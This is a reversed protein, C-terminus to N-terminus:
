DTTRRNSVFHAEIMSAVFFTQKKENFVPERLGRLLGLLFFSLFALSGARCDTKNDIENRQCAKQLLDEIRGLFSGAQERLINDHKDQLFLAERVLARSFSLNQGLYEYLEATIHALQMKINVPPLTALSNQLVNEIDERFTSILLSPKDPFHKFITGLGVDAHEALERMTTNEYGMRGFLSYAAAMIIRRTEEKQIQRRNSKKLSRSAMTAIKNFM